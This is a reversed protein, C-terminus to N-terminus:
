AIPSSSPGASAARQLVLALLSLDGVQAAEIYWSWAAQGTPKRDVLQQARTLARDVRRVGNDTQASASGRGDTVM